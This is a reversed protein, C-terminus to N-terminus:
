SKVISTTRKGNRFPIVSPDFLHVDEKTLRMFEELTNNPPANNILIAATIENRVQELEVNHLQTHLPKNTISLSIAALYFVM